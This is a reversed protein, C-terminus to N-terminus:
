KAKLRLLEITMEEVVQNSLLSALIKRNTDIEQKELKNLDNLTKITSISYVHMGAASFEKYIASEENLFVKVGLWLLTVINGFAQQHNVNFIAIGVELLKRNYENLPYYQDVIEFKMKFQLIGKLLKAKYDINGYHVPLLISRACKLDSLKEIVEYHNLGPDASHGIMIKNGLEINKWTYIEGLIESLSLYSFKFFKIQSKSYNVINEFDQPFYIALYDISNFSQIFKKHNYPVNGKLRYYTEVAFQRFINNSSLVKKKLIQKSFNQYRSEAFEPLNYFDGGWFTWVSILASFRKRLQFNLQQFIPNYFHFYVRDLETLDNVWNKFNKSYGDFYIIKEHEIKANNINVILNDKACIRELRTAFQSSYYGFPDMFLHLNM